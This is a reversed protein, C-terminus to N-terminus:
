IFGIENDNDKEARKRSKIENSIVNSFDQILSNELIAVISLNIDFNKNVLNTLQVANLSNGGVKFFDDGLELKNLNLVTKVTELIKNELTEDSEGLEKDCIYKDNLQRM